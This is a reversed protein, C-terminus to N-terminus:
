LARKMSDKKIKRFIRKVSDKKVKRFNGYKLFATIKVPGYM